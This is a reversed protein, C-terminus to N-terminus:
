SPQKKTKNHTLSEVMNKVGDIMEFQEVTDYRDSMERTTHGMIAMIVLDHVGSRRMNIKFIHRLDHFTLGNEVNRGYPIGVSECAKKLSARISSLPQKNYLFVYPSLTTEENEDEVMERPIKKLISHLENCIPVLRKKKTKTHEKELTIIKAAMDVRDWTLKTIENRRMGSYFATLTILGAHRPMANIIKMVDEFNYYVNRKNEGKTLLKKLHKFPQLADGSVKDAEWARNLMNRAVGTLQDIYSASLGKNKMKIQYNILDHKTLSYITYNGFEVLFLKINNLLVNKYALEDIQPIKEFWEFLKNFTIKTGSKIDLIRNEAKKSKVKGDAAKAETLSAGILERKKKGNIKYEVYYKVSKGKKAKDLDQGCKCRKAKLNNQRNCINCKLFISM